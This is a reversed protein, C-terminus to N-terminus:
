TRVTDQYYLYPSLSLDRPSVDHAEIGRLLRLGGEEFYRFVLESCFYADNEDAPRRSVFRLVSRYDYRKGIQSELWRVATSASYRETM